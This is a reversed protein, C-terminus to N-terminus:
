GRDIEHDDVFTASSSLLLTDGVSVSARGGSMVVEVTAGGNEWAHALYAAACAGTGCAETLGVGREWSRLLVRSPALLEVLHVNCGEPAFQAELVPGVAALDISASDSVEVLLHPNGINVTAVRGHPIGGLDIILDDVEPGPGPYGMDVIVSVEPDTPSGSVLIHRHGVDTAVTFELDTIGTARGVAQGFCCLGNGSLEARSGDRNFVAFSSPGESPIAAPTGIILGDASVGTTPDCLQRALGPADGPIQDLMGILFVNGLGHHRTLHM